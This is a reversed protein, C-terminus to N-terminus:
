GVLPAALHRGGWPRAMDLTKRPEGAVLDVEANAYPADKRRSGDLRLDSSPCNSYGSLCRESGSRIPFLQSGRARPMWEQVKMLMLM